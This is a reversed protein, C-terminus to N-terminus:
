KYDHNDLYVGNAEGREGDWTFILRWQKNVRIGSKGKRDVFEYYQKSLM